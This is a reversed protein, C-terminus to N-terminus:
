SFSVAMGRLAVADDAMLSEDSLELLLREEARTWGGAEGGFDGGDGAFDTALDEFLYGGEGGGRAGGRVQQGDCPECLERWERERWLHPCFPWFV